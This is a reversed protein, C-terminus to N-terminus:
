TAAEIARDFAELVEAHTREPADNWEALSEPNGIGRRVLASATDARVSSRKSAVRIAGVSCWCTALGYSDSVPLGNANRAFARQTWMGPEAILARAAVLTDRTTTM